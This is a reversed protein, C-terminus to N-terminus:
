STQDEDDQNMLKCTRLIGELTKNVTKTRQSIHPMDGYQLEMKEIRDLIDGNLEDPVDIMTLEKLNDIKSFNTIEINRILDLAKRKLNVQDELMREKIRALSGLHTDMNSQALKRIFIQLKGVLRRAAEIEQDASSFSYANGSFYKRRLFDEIGKANIPLRIKKLRENMFLAKINADNGCLGSVIEILRAQNLNYTMMERLNNALEVCLDRVDIEKGDLTIKLPKEDFTSRKHNVRKRNGGKLTSGGGVSKKMNGVSPITPLSPMSVMSELKPLKLAASKLEPSLTKASNLGSKPSEMIPTKIEDVITVLNTNVSNTFGRQVGKGGKLNERRGRAEAEAVAESRTNNLAASIQDITLNIGNLTRSAGNNNDNSSLVKSSEVDTKMKKQFKLASAGESSRQLYTLYDM